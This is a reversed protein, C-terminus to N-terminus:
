NLWRLHALEARQEDALKVLSSEDAMATDFYAAIMYGTPTSQCRLIHLRTQPIKLEPIITEVMGGPEVPSSCLLLCGSASANIINAELEEGDRHLKIVLQLPYRRHRRREDDSEFSV